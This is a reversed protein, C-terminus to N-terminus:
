FWREGLVSSLRVCGLDLCLECSVPAVLDLVGLGAEDRSGSAAMTRKTTDLTTTSWVDWGAARYFSEVDLLHRNFVADTSIGLANAVARSATRLMITATHGDWADATLRNFVEFVQEPIEKKARADSPKMPGPM